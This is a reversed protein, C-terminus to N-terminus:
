TDWGEVGLLCCRGTRSSRDQTRPGTVSNWELNSCINTNRTGSQLNILNENMKIIGTDQQTRLQAACASLSYGLPSMFLLAELSLSLVCVGWCSLSHLNREM